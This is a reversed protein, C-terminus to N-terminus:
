SSYDAFTARQRALHLEHHRDIAYSDHNTACALGSQVIRRSYLRINIRVSFTVNSQYENM